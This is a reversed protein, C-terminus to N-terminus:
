VNNDHNIESVNVYLIAYERLPIRIQVGENNNNIYLFINLKIYMWGVLYDSFKPCYLDTISCTM